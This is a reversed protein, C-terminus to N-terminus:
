LSSTPNEERAMRVEFPTTGPPALDNMVVEKAENQFITRLVTAM